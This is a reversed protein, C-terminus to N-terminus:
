CVRREPRDPEAAAGITWSRGLALSWWTVILHPAHASISIAQEADCDIFHTCGWRIAVEAKFRAFSNKDTAIGDPRCILPSHRYQTGALSASIRAHESQPIDSILVAREPLVEPLREIRPGQRRSTDTLFKALLVYDLGLGAFPAEAVLDITAGSAKAARGTPTAEGREWPLRFLERM